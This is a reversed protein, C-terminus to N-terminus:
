KKKIIKLGGMYKQLVIPVKVEGKKTQNNELIAVMARSTAIATNNLTHVYFRKGKDEAKINLRRAQAAEMNTLSCFESYGKKRPSWYELDCSKAKLDGLDGSCCELVRTPIGIQKFIDKSIKLM